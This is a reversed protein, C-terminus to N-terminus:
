SFQYDIHVVDDEHFWLVDDLESECVLRVFDRYREPLDPHTEIPIQYQDISVVRVGFSVVAIEASWGFSERSDHPWYLFPRGSVAVQRSEYEAWRSPEKSHVLELREM